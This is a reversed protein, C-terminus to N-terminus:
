DALASSLKKRRRYEIPTEQTWRKFARYFTSPESFGTLYVIQEISEDTKALLRRALRSRYDNLVHNFSSGVDALQSRLSRPKMRLQKAVEDLSVEGSELMQGIVRRVDSVLDMRQLEALKETAVQVHLKLLEPEAHWFTRDLIELPFYLRTEKQQFLVPCGYIEEYDSLEAGQDHSFWVQLPAFAGDTVQRFFQIIGAMMCEAMNRSTTDAIGSALYCVDEQQVFRGSMADSLLRQYQLVRRLGEGFNPSSSFLYELVQGRFRPLYRGLHLGIYPNGSVEVAAKWFVDQAAVPTRLRPDNLQLLAAGSRQLVAHADVGANQLAQHVLRLLVGSDTLENM